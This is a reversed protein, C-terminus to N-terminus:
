PMARLVLGSGGGELMLTDAEIAYTVEGELVSLVAGEVSMAPEPCAM